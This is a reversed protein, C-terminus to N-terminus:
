GGAVPVKASHILGGESDVIYLTKRRRFTAKGRRIKYSVMSPHDFDALGLDKRTPESAQAIPLGSRPNLRADVPQPQTIRTIHFRHALADRFHADIEAGTVADIEDPATVPEHYQQRATVLM